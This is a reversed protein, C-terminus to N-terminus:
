LYAPSILSGHKFNLPTSLREEKNSLTTNAHWSGTNIFCYIHELVQASTWVGGQLVNSLMILFGISFPLLLILFIHEHVM